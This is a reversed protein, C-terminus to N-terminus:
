DHSNKREVNRDKEERLHEEGFSCLIYPFAQSGSSCMNTKPRWQEGSGGDPAQLM